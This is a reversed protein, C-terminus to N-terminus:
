IGENARTLAVLKIPVACLWAMGGTCHFMGNEFSVIHATFDNNDLNTMAEKDCSDDVACWIEDHGDELMARTLESGRVEKIM